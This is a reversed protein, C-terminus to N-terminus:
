IPNNEETQELECSFLVVDGVNANELEEALVLPGSVKIVNGSM